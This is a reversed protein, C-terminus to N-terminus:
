HSLCLIMAINDYSKLACKNKKAPEEGMIEKLVFLGTSNNEM